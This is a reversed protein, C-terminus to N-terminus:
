ASLPPRFVPTQNPHNQSTHVHPPAVPNRTLGPIVPNTQTLTPIVPTKLTKRMAPKQPQPRHPSKEAQTRAHPALRQRVLIRNNRRPDSYPSKTCSSSGPRRRSSPLFPPLRDGAPTSAPVCRLYETMGAYAPIGNASRFGPNRGAGPHRSIPTCASVTPSLLLRLTTLM